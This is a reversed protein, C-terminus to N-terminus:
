SRLAERLRRAGDRGDHSNIYADAGLELGALFGTRPQCEFHWHFPTSPVRHLWVNFPPRDLAADIARFVAVFLEALEGDDSGADFDDAPDFPALWTEHGFKPHRPTFVAFRSGAAVIRDDREADKLEHHVHGGTRRDEDLEARLRPPLEPMGLLQSHNHAISAGAERGVNKFLFAHAIGPQAEVHAIRRRWVPLVHRWTPADLAAPRPTHAPGEAIVEHASSAPFRNEFARVVWGPTDPRSGDLRVADVEPPTQSEAGPCFPCQEKGDKGPVTHMPRARRHPALFIPRGTSADREVRPNTM